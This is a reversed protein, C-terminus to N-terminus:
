VYFLHSGGGGGGGGGGFTRAQEMNGIRTYM